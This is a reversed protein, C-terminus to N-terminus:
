FKLGAQRASEALAKVQGHYPRGGRDFVVQSVGKDVARKALLEGVTTAAKVGSVAGAAKERSSAQALTQGQVDDIIQAYIHKLSRFVSLRPRGPVGNIVRRIRVKRFEKRLLRSKM